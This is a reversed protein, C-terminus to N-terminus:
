SQKSENIAQVYFYSCKERSVFSLDDDFPSKDVYQGKFFLDKMDSTVGANHYIKHSYWNDIDDTAWCFDFEDNVNPFIGFLPMNWLQAWMEATWKQIDSDIKEFYHWIKNSDQYVKKWFKAKPKRVILQAGICDNRMKFIDELNVGIIKSMDNLIKEGNHCQKIYDYNLYGNCNSGFWVNEDYLFPDFNIMERFIVDSDIYFFDENEFEPNEKLFRYWLYPKISPIYSTDDRLDDFEYAEIFPYKNKLYSIVNNDKKTFLLIVDTMDHKELNHLAVDLEWQFRYIAPQCM